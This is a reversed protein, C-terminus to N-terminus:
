LGSTSTLSKVVNHTVGPETDVEYTHEEYILGIDEAYYQYIDGVRNFAGYGSVGGFQVSYANHLKYAEYSVGNVDITEFGFETYTGATSMPLSYPKGSYDAQVDMTYSYAWSGVYGLTAPDPLYKRGPSDVGSITYSGSSDTYIQSWEVMYMGDSECAVYVSGSYERGDSLPGLQAIYKWTDKYTIPSTSEGIISINETGTAGDSVVDYTKSAGVIDVPEWPHDCAGAPTTTTEDVTTDTDPPTTEEVETDTDDGPGPGPGGTTGTDTDTNDNPLTSTDDQTGGQDYKNDSNCGLLAFGAVSLSVIFTLPLVNRAV